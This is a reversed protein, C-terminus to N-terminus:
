IAEAVDAHSVPGQIIVPALGSVNGDEYVDFFAGLIKYVAEVYFADLLQVPIFYDPHEARPFALREAFKVNGYVTVRNERPVELASERICRKFPTRAGRGFRVTNVQM